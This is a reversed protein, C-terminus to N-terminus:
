TGRRCQNDTDYLSRGTDVFTVREEIENITLQVRKSRFGPLYISRFPRVVPRDLTTLHVELDSM